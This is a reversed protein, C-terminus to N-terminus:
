PPPNWRILANTKGRQEMHECTLHFDATKPPHADASAHSLRHAPSVRGFGFTAHRRKAENSHVHRVPRSSSSMGEQM